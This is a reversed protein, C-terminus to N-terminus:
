PHPFSTSASLCVSLSLSLSRSLPLTLSFSYSIRKPFNEYGACACSCSFSCLHCFINCFSMAHAVDHTHTHTHCPVPCSCVPCIRLLVYFVIVTSCLAVYSLYKKSDQWSGGGERKVVGGWWELSGREM